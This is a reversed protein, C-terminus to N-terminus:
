QGVALLRQPVPQISQAAPGQGAGAGFLAVRPAVRQVLGFTLHALSLTGQALTIERARQVTLGLGHVPHAVAHARQVLRLRLM